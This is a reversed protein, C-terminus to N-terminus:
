SHSRDVISEGLSRSSLTDNQCVRGNKEVSLARISILSKTLTAVKEKYLYGDPFLAKMERVSLLRVQEVDTLATIWDSERPMYGLDFRQHLILRVNRPLQSWAPFHFHPEIPFYRYPTQIFYAKAVRRVERAMRVQDGFTGVHEIVSNSFCFDFQCDRFSMSRADGSCSVAPIKGSPNEKTLNLLTISINKCREDWIKLWFEENGGVDLISIPRNLPILDLFLSVRRQRLQSAWSEPKRHDGFALRM